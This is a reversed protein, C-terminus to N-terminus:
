FFFVILFPWFITIDRILLCSIHFIILIPLLAFFFATRFKHKVKSKKVKKLKFLENQVKIKKM